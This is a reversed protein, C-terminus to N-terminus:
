SDGSCELFVGPQSLWTNEKLLAQRAEEVKKQILTIEENKKQTSQQKEVSPEVKQFYASKQKFYIFLHGPLGERL